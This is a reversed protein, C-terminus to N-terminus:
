RPAAIVQEAFHEDIQAGKALLQRYKVFDITDKGTVKRSEFANFGLWAENNMNAALWHRQAM